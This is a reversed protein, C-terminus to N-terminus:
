DPELYGDATAQSIMEKNIDALAGLSKEVKSLRRLVKAAKVHHEAWSSKEVNLYNLVIPLFADIGKAFRAEPTSQAEYEEWLETLRTVTAGPYRAALSDMGAQEREEQGDVDPGFAFTDGAVAEASDHILALLVARGVDIDETCYDALLLVGLAVHWSHEGVSEKRSGTGIPNQREIEKLKELALLLHVEVPLGAIITSRDDHDRGM